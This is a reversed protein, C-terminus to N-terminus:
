DFLRGGDCATCDEGNKQTTGMCNQCGQQQMYMFQEQSCSYLDVYWAMNGNGDKRYELETWHADDGTTMTECLIAEAGKQFALAADGFSETFKVLNKRFHPKDM